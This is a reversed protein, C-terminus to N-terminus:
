NSRHMSPRLNFINFVSDRSEDHDDNEFYSSNLDPVLPPKVNKNLM